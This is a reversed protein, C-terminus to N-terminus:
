AWSTLTIVDSLHNCLPQSGWRGVRGVKNSEVVVERKLMEAM